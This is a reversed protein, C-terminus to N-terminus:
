AQPRQGQGMEMLDGDRFLACRYNEAGPAEPDLGGGPNAPVFLRWENEGRLNTYNSGEVDNYVAMEEAVPVGNIFSANDQRDYIRVYLQGRNPSEPDLENDRNFIKIAFSPTDCYAEMTEAQVPTALAIAGVAVSLSGMRLCWPMLYRKLMNLSEAACCVYEMLGVATLSGGNM